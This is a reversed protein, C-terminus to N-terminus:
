GAAAANSLIAWHHQRVFTKACQMVQGFVAFSDHEVHECDFFTKIVHDEHFAKSSNDIEVADNQMVFLVYAAIEHMGQRYGIDPNLKCFTFLVDLLMRQNDAERTFDFM